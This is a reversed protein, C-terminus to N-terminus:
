LGEMLRRDFESCEFCEIDEYDNINGFLPCDWHFLNIIDQREKMGDLIRNFPPDGVYTKLDRIFTPWPGSELEDLLSM